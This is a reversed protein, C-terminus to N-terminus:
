RILITYRYKGYKKYILPPTPILEIEEDAHHKQALYLLDQYVANVKTFLTAEIDHKYLLRAYQTYPPYGHRSRMEDEKKKMTALDHRIALQIAEHESDRTQVIHVSDPYADIM